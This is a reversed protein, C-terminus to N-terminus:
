LVFSYVTFSHAQGHTGTHAHYWKTFCTSNSSMAICQVPVKCVFECGGGVGGVYRASPVSIAQRQWRQKLPTSGM